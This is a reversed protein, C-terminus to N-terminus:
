KIFLYLSVEDRYNKIRSYIYIDLNNNFDIIAYEIVCYNIM